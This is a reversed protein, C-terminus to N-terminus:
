HIEKKLAEWRQMVDKAARLREAVSAAAQASPAVDAGQLLDLLARLQAAISNLTEKQSSEEPRPFGGPEEGQLAVLRDLVSGAAAAASKAADQLRARMPNSDNLATQVGALADYVQKSLTFQQLLGDAPTKVRPDM